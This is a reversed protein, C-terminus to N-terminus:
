HDLTLMTLSGFSYVYDLKQLFNGILL